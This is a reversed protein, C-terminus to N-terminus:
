NRWKRAREAEGLNGFVDRKSGQHFGRKLTQFHEASSTMDNEWTEEGVVIPRLLIVLESKVAKQSTRRFLQGVIPIDGLIPASAQNETMRSHMLGGIVIVQGSRARVINDSERVTSLALPLKQKNEIKTTTDIGLVIEKTQDTVLSVIPHIHLTVMGEASIQPTVDLAVGSFFPTLTVDQTPGQNINASSIASVKTVFFEDQGVKIVAKQNNLTSIRPSSLVQVNGQSELLQIVSSFGRGRLPITFIGTFDATTFEDIDTGALARAQNGSFKTSSAGNQKGFLSWDIGSQFGDSLEVELIRAELIVQRDLSIGMNELYHEVSRLEGPFARIVITGTQPSVVVARGQGEGVLINLAEELETYVDAKTQTDISSGSGMRSRQPTSANNLQNGLNDRYVGNGIKESVQQGSSAQTQSYGARMINLYNFKFIRTQLGAPLIQFGYPTRRYDYGYVDRVVDLTKDVTVNKLDLSITGTVEPSVVISTNTGKVLGMFFSRAPVNKVSVNFTQDPQSSIKHSSILAAEVAAPPAAKKLANLANNGQIGQALTAAIQDGTTGHRAAKTTCGCLLVLCTIWVGVTKM